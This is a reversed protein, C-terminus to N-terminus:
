LFTEPLQHPGNLRNHMNHVCSIVKIRNYFYLSVNKLLTRCIFSNPYCVSWTFSGQLFFQVPVLYSCFFLTKNMCSVSNSIYASFQQRVFLLSVFSFRHRTICLMFLIAAQVLNDSGLASCSM